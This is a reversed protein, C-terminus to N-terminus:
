CLKSSVFDWVKKKKVRLDEGVKITKSKALPISEFTHSFKEAFKPTTRLFASTKLEKREKKLKSNGVNLAFNYKIAPPKGQANAMKDKVKSKPLKPPLCVKTLSMQRKSSEIGMPEDAEKHHVTARRQPHQKKQAAKINPFRQHLREGYM